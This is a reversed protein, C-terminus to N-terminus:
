SVRVEIYSRILERLEKITLVNGKAFGLLSFLPMVPETLSYLVDVKIISRDKIEEDHIMEDCLQFNILM